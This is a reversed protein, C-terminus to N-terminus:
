KIDPTSTLYAPNCAVIVMKNHLKGSTIKYNVRKKSSTGFLTQREFKFQIKFISNEVLKYIPFKEARLYVIIYLRYWIDYQWPGRIDIERNNHRRNM